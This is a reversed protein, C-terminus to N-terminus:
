TKLKRSIIVLLKRRGEMDSGVLIPDLDSVIISLIKVLEILGSMFLPLKFMPM